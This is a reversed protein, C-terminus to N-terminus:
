DPTAGLYEEHGELVERALKQLRQKVTGSACSGDAARETSSQLEPDPIVSAAM